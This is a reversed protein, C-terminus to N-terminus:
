NLAKNEKDFDPLFEKVKKYISDFDIMDKGSRDQKSCAIRLTTRSLEGLQTARLLTIVKASNRDCIDNWLIYIGTGYIELNDLSFLPGYEAFVDDPDILPNMTIMESLATTAGINGDVMKMISKIIGDTLTIRSM